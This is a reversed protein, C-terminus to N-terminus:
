KTKLGDLLKQAEETVAAFQASAKLAKAVCAVYGPDPKKKLTACAKPDAIKARTPVTAVVVRGGKAVAVVLATPPALPIDQSFGGIAARAITGDGAAVPLDTFAEFAADVGVSSTFFDNRAFLGALGTRLDKQMEPNQKAAESAWALVIKETSVLYAIRIDESAYRLGDVGGSEIMGDLLTEPRFIAEPATGSFSSRGVVATLRRMLDARAAEDMKQIDDESKKAAEAAHLEALHTSRASLYDDEPSLASSPASVFLLCVFIAKGLRALIM